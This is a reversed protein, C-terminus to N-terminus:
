EFFGQASSRQWAGYNVYRDVVAGQARDERRSLNLM